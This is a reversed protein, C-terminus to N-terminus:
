VVIQLELICNMLYLCVEKKARSPQSNTHWVKNQAGPFKGTVAWCSRVQPSGLEYAQDRVAPWLEGRFVSLWTTLDGARINICVEIVCSALVVYSAEICISVETNLAWHLWNGSPFFPLPHLPFIHYIPSWWETWPFCKSAIGILLKGLLCCKRKHQWQKNSMNLTIWM